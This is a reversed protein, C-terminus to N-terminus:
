AVKSTHIVKDPRAMSCLRKHWREIFDKQSKSHIPQNSALYMQRINRLNPELEISILSKEPNATERMQLVISEGDAIRDAYCMLCNHQQSAEDILAEYDFIPKIFYVNEKYELAPILSEMATKRQKMGTLCKQHREDESRRRRDEMIQRHLRAAVNHERMLSDSDTRPMMNIQQCINLYDYLLRLGEQRDIAEYVDIRELYNMLGKYTFVPNGNEHRYELIQEVTKVEELTYNKSLMETVWNRDLNTNRSFKAKDQFIWLTSENKIFDLMWREADIIDTPKTGPHLTDSNPIEMSGNRFYELAIKYEAKMLIEMWPAYLYRYLMLEANLRGYYLDRDKDADECAKIWPLVWPRAKAVIEQIHSTDQLWISRDMNGGEYLCQAKKCPEWNGVSMQTLRCDLDNKQKVITNRGRWDSITKETIKEHVFFVMKVKLTKLVAKGDVAALRVFLTETHGKEEVPFLSETLTKLTSDENKVIYAQHAIRLYNDRDEPDPKLPPTVPYRGNSEDKFDYYNGMLMFGKYTSHQAKGIANVAERPSKHEAAAILDQYVGCLFPDTEQAKAKM